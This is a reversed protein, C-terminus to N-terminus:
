LLEKKLFRATYSKKNKAVEEPTGKAVVNGGAKGGEPGIDVIYDALKIVDMNHEIILITNGKDVLKNIVDMLVRIDEFHLGTTPEDLIYFTNGTDKKSLEGALKIRQAEGGSLTTSQQGLTIYGLGVDQLTKVKRHIKPIMEFFPVAEDITMNLVDSISKGKFRIELTERNFRKGQCNECEVYVDPLFSMEITRVGSGECTECRGGKVNFSFRGAKYGRIMSESTMTFLNRIETFVETYTAPNSRPTRGIPSQDIDIVKDIHELGEIKKYPKPKKVGNFYFANLIPYLTENILTSKGSGSVGTICILKGLPLDISVNKLNNGTAGTLKLFKGNGERRKKPIDFKMTGNLYQATITNGKLIEKPTGKSIIEGGYKGAKPGIDIVYDAREIMDKDHEVVIVSNGIDRLQELSHILKENDRQHLGISPEDLIYLVGVLQSGIQTALRIRQAEGGSLSKSSRSIALYELGVNMLFNLRDKIEKIVETAIRKQKDSLHNDLDHFWATLDSIDMNSLHAINQENIKFYLSEKKLRSGQCTPCNVEDMFAAAWRKLTSSGSDDHQSKIFASIGEFEIKYEKTVGATKSTVSFKEKGGNLMMQMAEDSITEIADTLKFDFKEAIFELQKFIWSSKYEGLPEFGGAKISLKPNPIIKKINIENITGLGNCNPCAGKPSNFSFLNPEPNQYSIGTTPCMLNRSFFRVQNSDQDLVMLVNEGYHMATNISESIRKQVDDTTDVVIRDIVTEIDHTKYRDLKMGTTIDKVEGNIRVKLFGQKAIQQFLEAYHGKRARIIPALINIRKGSFDKIILDKIQEDSYSVMKEDTNYSYAEGARAFLLRLFDYIETITGVTSRPSKSTTKQEIAIVPSLGDIKDVDPRELGGLFQRAYASFTEIYRRQGEAYITDFALSSKGSGSLGTIVVLKERPISIDINKLNHVRAGIVEITNDNELM